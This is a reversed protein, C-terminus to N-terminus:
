PSRKVNVHQRLMRRIRDFPPDLERARTRLRESSACSPDDHDIRADRLQAHARRVALEPQVYPCWIRSCAHRGISIEGARPQRQRLQPVARPMVPRQRMLRVVAVALADELREPVARADPRQLITCHGADIRCASGEHEARTSLVAVRDPAAHLVDSDRVLHKRWGFEKARAAARSRRDTRSFRARRAVPPEPAIRCAAHVARAGQAAPRERHAVPLRIQRRHRERCMGVLREVALRRVGGDRERAAVRSRDRRSGSVPGPQGTRAKSRREDAAPVERHFCIEARVASIDRTGTRAGKEARHVVIVVVVAPRQLEDGVRTEGARAASPAKTQLGLVFCARKVVILENSRSDVAPEAFPLVDREHVMRSAAIM